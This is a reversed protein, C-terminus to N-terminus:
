AFTGGKVRPYAGNDALAKRIRDAVEPTWYDALDTTQRTGFEDLWDIDDGSLARAPVTLEVRSRRRGLVLYRTLIAITAAILAAITLRM